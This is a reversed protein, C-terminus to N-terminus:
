TADKYKDPITWGREKMRQLSGNRSAKLDDFSGDNYQSILEELKLQPKIIKEFVLERAQREAVKAADLAVRLQRIETKLYTNEIAVTTSM